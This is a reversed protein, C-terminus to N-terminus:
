RKLLRCIKRLVVLVFSLNLSSNLNLKELLFTQLKLVHSKERHGRCVSMLNVAIRHFVPAEQVLM